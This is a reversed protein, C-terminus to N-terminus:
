EIVKIMGDINSQKQTRVAEHHAEQILNSSIPSMLFSDIYKDNDSMNNISKIDFHKVLETTLQICITTYLQDNTLVNRLKMIDHLNDLTNTEDESEDLYETPIRFVTM